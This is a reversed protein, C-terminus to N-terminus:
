QGRRKAKYYLKQGAKPGLTQKQRASAARSSKTHAKGSAAAKMASGESAKGRADAGSGIALALSAAGALGLVKM